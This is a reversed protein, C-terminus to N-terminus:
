ISLQSVDLPSLLQNSTSLPRAVPSPCLLRSFGLWFVLLPFGDASSLILFWLVCSADPAIVRADVM